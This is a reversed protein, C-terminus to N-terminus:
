NGCCSASAAIASGSRLRYHCHGGVYRDANCSMLRSPPVLVTSGSPQMSNGALKYNCRAPDGSLSCEPVIAMRWGDAVLARVTATDRQQNRRLKTDWFRSKRSYSLLLCYEHCSGHLWTYSQSEGSRLVLDPRTPTIHPHLRRAVEQRM